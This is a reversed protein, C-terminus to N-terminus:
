SFVTSTSLRSSNSSMMESGSSILICARRTLSRIRPLSCLKNIWGAVASNTTMIKVCSTRGNTRGDCFCVSAVVSVNTGPFCFFVRYSPCWVHFYHSGIQNPGKESSRLLGLTAMYINLLLTKTSFYHPILLKRAKFIHNEKMILVEEKHSVKNYGLYNNTTGFVSYWM